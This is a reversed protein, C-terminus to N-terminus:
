QARLARWYLRSSGLLAVGIALYLLGAPGPGLLWHRLARGGVMMLAVLAWSSPSQFGGLCRGDGRECIRALAKRAAKDLVFRAKLAGM